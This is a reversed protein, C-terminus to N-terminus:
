IFLIHFRNVPNVYLLVWLCTCVCCFLSFLVSADRFHYSSLHIVTWQIIIIKSHISFKQTDISSNHCSQVSSGSSYVVCHVSSTQAFSYHIIDHKRHIFLQTDDDLLSSSTSLRMFQTIFHHKQVTSIEKDPEFSILSHHYKLQRCMNFSSTKFVIKIWKVDM